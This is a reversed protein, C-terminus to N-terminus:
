AAQPDFEHFQTIYIYIYIHTHTHRHTHTQTHTGMPMNTLTTVLSGPCRPETMPRTM